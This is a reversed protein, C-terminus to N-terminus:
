SKDELKMKAVIPFKKMDMNQKCVIVGAVCKEVEKGWLMRSYDSVM